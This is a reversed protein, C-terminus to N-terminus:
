ATLRLATGPVPHAGTISSRGSKDGGGLRRATPVSTPTTSTPRTTSANGRPSRLTPERRAAHRSRTLYARPRRRRLRPAWVGATAHRMPEARGGRRTGTVDGQERRSTVPLPTPEASGPVASAPNTVSATGHSASPKAFPAAPTQLLRPREPRLEDRRGTQRHHTPRGSSPARLPLM